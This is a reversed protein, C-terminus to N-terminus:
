LGSERETVWGVTDFCRLSNYKVLKRTSNLVSICCVRKAAEGLLTGSENEFRFQSQVCAVSVKILIDRIPCFLFHDSVIVIMLTRGKYGIGTKELYQLGFSSKQRLCKEYRGCNSGELNIKM